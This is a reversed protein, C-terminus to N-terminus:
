MIFSPLPLHYLLIPTNANIIKINLTWSFIGSGGARLQVADPICILTDRFLLQIPPKDVISITKIVTDICGMTNTVILQADKPGMSPYTFTPNPQDSYDTFSSVEGFDWTWSNVLGYVTTTNDTFVTPRTFCIGSYNFAPIFGPYVKAVSHTSDSCQEGRNIVLKVFYTGTDAFSYTATPNSSTYLQIGQQNTFEWFYTHILPSTSLNSVTLTKSEKCLMYAPPLTAAAITCSAINIQLDKRQTAIIIGNRIENVCVTVVYIGAPPAV